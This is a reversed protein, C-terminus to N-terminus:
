FSCDVSANFWVFNKHHGDAPKNVWSNKKASNGEFSVGVKAKANGNFSYVLDANAGYYCYGKKGDPTPGTTIRPRGYPKKASDLGIKAGLDVGLGSVAYQSLDFNYGVKGELAIERRDFDYFLHLSPSAIVDASVGAFIENTNRKHKSAGGGIHKALNTHLHHFYGADLTFVDTVDYNVELYPSVHAGVNPGGNREAGILPISSDVGFGIKVGDFVEYGFGVKPQFSKCDERRGRHVNETVFKVSVDAGVKAPQSDSGQGASVSVAALGFLAAAVVSLKRM